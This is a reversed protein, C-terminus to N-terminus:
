EDSSSDETSETVSVIRDLLLLLDNGTVATDLIKTLQKKTM